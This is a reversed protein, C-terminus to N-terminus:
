GSGTEESAQLATLLAQADDLAQHWELPTAHNLLRELLEKVPQALIVEEGMHRLSQGATLKWVRM